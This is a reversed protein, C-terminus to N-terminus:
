GHSGVVQMGHELVSAHLTSKDLYFLPNLLHFFQVWCCFSARLPVVMRMWAVLHRNGNVAGFVFNATSVVHDGFELFEDPNVRGTFQVFDDVPFKLRQVVVGSYIDFPAFDEDAM